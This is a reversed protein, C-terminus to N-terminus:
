VKTRWDSKGTSGLHRSPVAHFSFDRAIKQANVARDVKREKAVRFRVKDNYGPKRTLVCLPQWGSRRALSNKHLGCCRVSLSGGHDTPHGAVGTKQTRQLSQCSGDFTSVSVHRPVANSRMEAATPPVSSERAPNALGGRFKAPM